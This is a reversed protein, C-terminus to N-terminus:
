KRLSELLSFFTPFTVAAAEIGRIMLPSACRLSAIAMAMIIRHDDFGDVSGGALGHGGEITLGDPQESIIAGLTALNTHMVAIRDTEKIRAQPVNVIRVQSDAFCATVALIPLADPMSNLDFTGGSLRGDAPGTVSVSKGHWRVTCGMRDLIDLIRKDGQPDQQDLGEVTVTTGCIAAACFFFSASSFDGTILEDFPKYEQGGPVDFHQLDESNRYRIGQKDLWSLTIGVYPKEHLLPVEIHSDGSAISCALLLGSLYQSTECEITTRGGRLPGAITFPPYGQRGEYEVTAGLESLSDLLPGIPRNCLQVDGTFRVTRGLAATMGAALYLTTGSNGCDVTVLPGGGRVVHRSDLTIIDDAKNWDISAGLLECVTVCSGTDQSDLPNRITSIGDALTAILLARITQSKSAPIRITGQVTTPVLTRDM